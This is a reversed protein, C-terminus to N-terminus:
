GHEALLRRHTEMDPARAGPRDDFARRHSEAVLLWDLLTMARIEHPRYGAAAAGM